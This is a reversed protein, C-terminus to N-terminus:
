EAGFQEALEHSRRKAAQLALHIHQRIDNEELVCIARETTGGPSTVRRRLTAADDESEMAMKAAGLATQLTLMRAAQPALGLQTASEQLTEMLLFFYAPGSGSLATVTDMLAEQEVWLTIGVARLISEAIDKQEDSVRENAYLGSAGCQLLAPTNPMVRVIPLKGGLWREIDTARIGAAISIVLPCRQQTSAAIQQCVSRLMQPKVALVIIDSNSIAENNDPNINIAHHVQLNNLQAVDPDSAYINKADYGDALLGSILSRAMNGAGIFTINKTNM